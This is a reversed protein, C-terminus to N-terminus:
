LGRHFLASASSVRGVRHRPLTLFVQHAQKRQDNIACGFVTDGLKIDSVGRGTEVVTGAFPFGLVHPYKLGCIDAQHMDWPTSATWEVRVRIQLDKPSLTPLQFIDLPAEPVPAAVAPHIFM